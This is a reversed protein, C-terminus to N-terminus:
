ANTTEESEISDIERNWIQNDDSSYFERVGYYVELAKDICTLVQDTEFKWFGRYYRYDELWKLADEGSLEELEDETFFTYLLYTAVYELSLEDTDKQNLNKKIFNDLDFHYLKNAVKKCEKYDKFPTRSYENLQYVTPTFHIEKVFRIEEPNLEIM